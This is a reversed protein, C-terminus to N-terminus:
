QDFSANYWPEWGGMNLSPNDQSSVLSWNRGLSKRRDNCRTSHSVRVFSDQQAIVEDDWGDRDAGDVVVGFCRCGNRTRSCVAQM